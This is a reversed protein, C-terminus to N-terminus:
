TCLMLKVAQAVSGTGKARTIKSIPDRSQKGLRAEFRLGGSRLRRLLQSKLCSGSGGESNNTKKNQIHIGKSIMQKALIKKYATSEKKGRQQHYRKICL